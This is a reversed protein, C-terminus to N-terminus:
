VPLLTSYRAVTQRTINKSFIAASVLSQVGGPRVAPDHSLTQVYDYLAVLQASGLLNGRPAHIVVVVPNDRDQNFQSNLLDYGQRSQVSKPLITAGPVTLSLERIPSAIVAVAVLVAAIVPWPRRM